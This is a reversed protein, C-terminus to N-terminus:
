PRLHPKFIFFFLFPKQVNDNQLSDIIIILKHVYYKIAIICKKTKVDKIIQETLDTLNIM